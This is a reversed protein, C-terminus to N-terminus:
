TAPRLSFGMLEIDFSDGYRDRKEQSDAQKGSTPVSVRRPLIPWGGQLDCRGRARLLGVGYLKLLRMEGMRRAAEVRQASDPTV